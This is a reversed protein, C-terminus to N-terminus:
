MGTVDYGIRLAYLMDNATMVDLRATTYYAGNLTTLQTRMSNVDKTANFLTSSLPNNPASLVADRSDAIDGFGTHTGPTYFAM